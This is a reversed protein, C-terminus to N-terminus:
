SQCRVYRQKIARPAPQSSEAKPAGACRGSRPLSLPVPIGRVAAPTVSASFGGDQFRDRCRAQLRTVCARLSWNWPAPSATRMEALTGAYIGRYGEDTLLMFAFTQLRDSTGSEYVFKPCVRRRRRGAVEEAAARPASGGSCPPVKSFPHPDLDLAFGEAAM